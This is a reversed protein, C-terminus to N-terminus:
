CNEFEEKTNEEKVQEKETEIYVENKHWKTIYFNSLVQQNFIVNNRRQSAFCLVSFM